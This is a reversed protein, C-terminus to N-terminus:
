LNSDRRDRGDELAGPPLREGLELVLDSDDFDEPLPTTTDGDRRDELDILFYMPLTVGSQQSM